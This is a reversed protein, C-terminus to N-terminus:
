YGAPNLVGSATSAEVVLFFENTIVKDRTRTHLFVLFLVPRFRSGFYYLGELIDSYIDSIIILRKLGM